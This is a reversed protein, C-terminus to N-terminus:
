DEEELYAWTINTINDCIVAKLIEIGKEENEIKPGTITIEYHDDMFYFDFCIKCM